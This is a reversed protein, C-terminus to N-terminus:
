RRRISTPLNKVNNGIKTNQGIYSFAGRYLKDGVTTDSAMFSPEEIGTKSYSNIKDYEELLKTFGSYPDPVRILVANVPEEPRFDDKVIVASAETKYIYKEYKPNALFTIDGKKADQIKGMNSIKEQGEGHVEGQLIAAIQNVTFEM